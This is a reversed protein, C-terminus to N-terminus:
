SEISQSSLFTGLLLPLTPMNPTDYSPRVEAIVSSRGCGASL